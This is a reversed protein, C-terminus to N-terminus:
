TGAEDAVGSHLPSFLSLFYIIEDYWKGALNSISFYQITCASINIDQLTGQQIYEHATFTIFM